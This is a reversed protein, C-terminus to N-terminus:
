QAIAELECVTDNKDKGTLNERIGGFELVM